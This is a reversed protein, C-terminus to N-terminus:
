FRWSSVIPVKSNKKWVSKWWHDNGKEEPQWHCFKERNTRPLLINFLSKRGLGRSLDTWLERFAGAASSIDLRLLQCQHEQQHTCHSGPPVQASARWCSSLHQLKNERKAQRKLWRPWRYGPDRQSHICHTTSTTPSLNPIVSCCRLSSSSDTPSLPPTPSLTLTPPPIHLFQLPLCCLSVQRM